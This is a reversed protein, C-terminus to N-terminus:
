AGGGERLVLAGINGDHGVATVLALRPRDSPDGRWAALLGAVQMAGAASYCQGVARTVDRVPPVGGLAL